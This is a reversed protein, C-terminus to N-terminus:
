EAVEAQRHGQGQDKRVYREPYNKQICAPGKPTLGGKPHDEQFVRWRYWALVQAARRDCLKPRYSRGECCANTSKRTDGRKPLGPGKKGPLDVLPWPAFWCCHSSWCAFKRWLKNEQISTSIPSFAQGRRNWITNRGISESWRTQSIRPTVFHRIAGLVAIPVEAVVNAVM